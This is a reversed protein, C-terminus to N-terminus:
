TKTARRRPWALSARARGAHSAEQRRAVRAGRRLPVIGATVALMTLDLRAQYLFALMSTKPAAAVPEPGPGWLLPLKTVAIAVVMDAALVLAAFRAFLGIVLLVGFVIEVAGIFGAIAGPSPFGLKTFRGVGQNEYVLKVLGSVVFVLGAAGRGLAAGPPLSGPDTAWILWRNM